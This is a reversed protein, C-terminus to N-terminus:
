LELVESGSFPCLLATLWFCRTCHRQGRFGDKRSFAVVVMSQVYLGELSLHRCAYKEDRAKRNRSIPDLSVSSARVIALITITPPISAVRPGSRVPSIPVSLTEM